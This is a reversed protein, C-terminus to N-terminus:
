MICFSEFNFICFFLSFSNIFLIDAGCISKLVDRMYMNYFIIILLKDVFTYILLVSRFYKEQWMYIIDHMIPFQCGVGYESTPVKSCLFLYFTYIMITFTAREM